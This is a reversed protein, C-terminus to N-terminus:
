RNCCRRAPRRSRWKWSAATKLRALERRAGILAFTAWLAYLALLGILILWGPKLTAFSSHRARWWLGRWFGLFSSGYNTSQRSFKAATQGAQNLWGSGHLGQNRQTRM